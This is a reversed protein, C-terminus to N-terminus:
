REGGQKRKVCERIVMLAAWIMVFDIPRSNTVSLVYEGFRMTCWGLTWLAVFVLLAKGTLKIEELM